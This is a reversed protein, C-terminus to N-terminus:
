FIYVLELSITDQSDTTKDKKTFSNESSADRRYELRVLLNDYLKYENTFTLEWLDQSAGTRTGGDDDFFEGRIAWGWKDTIQYRSYGAIGWWSANDGNALADEQHGYDYNLGVTLKDSVEWTAVLDVVGRQSGNDNDQEAGYIGTVGISLDEYPSLGIRGLVTKADNNDKVNDWGNVVGLSFDLNDNFSYNALIGTHTFPIAYGFLFSRSTNFNDKSEIVEYGLLTVFKGITFNLGGIGRPANLSIYAQQLDFEDTTSGLGSSGISEAVDGYDLDVRFGVGQPLAEKEVVLEFLDFNFTNANQDFIRLNNADTDPENFNYNVSTVLHGSLKVGKLLTLIPEEKETVESNLKGELIQLKEKLKKVEEELPVQGYVIKLNLFSGGLLIVTASIAIIFSERRM